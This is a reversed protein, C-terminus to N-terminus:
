LRKIRITMHIVNCFREMLIRASKPTEGSLFAESLDIAQHAARQQLAGLVEALQDFVECIVRQVRRGMMKFLVLNGGFGQATGDSNSGCSSALTRTRAPRKRM